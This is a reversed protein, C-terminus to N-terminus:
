YQVHKAITATEKEMDTLTECGQRPINTTKLLLSCINIPAM